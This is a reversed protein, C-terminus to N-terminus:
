KAAGGETAGCESIDMTYPIYLMLESVSVRQWEIRSSLGSILVKCGMGLV